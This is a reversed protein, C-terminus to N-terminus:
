KGQKGKIQVSHPFDGTQIESNCLNLTQLVVAHQLAPQEEIISVIHFSPFVKIAHQLLHTTDTRARTHILARMSM